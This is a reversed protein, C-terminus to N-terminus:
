VCKTWRDQKQHFVFDIEVLWMQEFVAGVARISEICQIDTALFERLGGDLSRANIHITHNLVRFPPFQVFLLYFDGNRSSFEEFKM